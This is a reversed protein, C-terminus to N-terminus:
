LNPGGGPLPTLLATAVQRRAEPTLRAVDHETVLEGTADNVVARCEACITWGGSGTDAVWAQSARDWLVFTHPWERGCSPCRDM